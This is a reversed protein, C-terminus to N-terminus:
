RGSFDAKRKELFAAMGEKQDATDFCAGFLTAEEQLGVELDLEEALACAQKARQVARPGKKGISECLSLAAELVTGEEEPVVRLALGIRVAEDAKVSRGTLILERARQPGVRRRLRQTGGFGPIVGLGVEPQGFVASPAALILDCAMAVEMGGGLAYGNVAAITVGPYLTLLHLVRQGRRAFQTAEAREMRAMAAIDAGAVFSKEGAGTLVVHRIGDRELDQLALGLQLIVEKNLANLAEPRTITLVATHDGHLTTQVLDLEGMEADAM